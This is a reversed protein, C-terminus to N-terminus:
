LSRGQPVEQDEEMEGLLVDSSVEAVALAASDWPSGLVGYFM